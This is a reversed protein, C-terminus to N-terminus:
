RALLDDAHQVVKLLNQLVPLYQSPAPTAARPDSIVAAAQDYAAQVSDAVGPSRRRVDARNTTWVDRFKNLSGHADPLDGAVASAVAEELDQTSLVAPTPHAAPCPIPGVPAALVHRAIAANHEALWEDVAKLGWVAVFVIQVEDDQAVLQQGDTAAPGALFADDVARSHQWVWETVACNPGYMQRFTQQTLQSQVQFTQGDPATLASQAAARGPGLTLGAGILLAVIRGFARM